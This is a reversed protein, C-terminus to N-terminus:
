IAARCSEVDFVVEGQNITQRVKAPGLDPLDFVVLNARSGITLQAPTQGILEAPRISAMEITTRLDCDTFRMINAVGYTIPLGAGALYQRQGGVVIKGDDLIEINGISTNTYHGPPMGAMGVLDSVLVCREPTKGRVFSKVVAPPLHHGDVILSAVLRDEALQDWIYNPHRRIQGHAANGLHTSMRAGADVATRIQDSDAATHGIAILVGAAVAKVIFEASGDYEPSLTLIRIRGGAAEQLRQFEDWDPPRCHELPHAGRPGDQRSIYPGEVHFGSVRRAVESSDECAAALIKMTHSLMEFSHTTATPLYSTVGDADMARSVRIVKETTLEFDNFEQGGYGNVQLDVFGPALWPENAGDAVPTIDTIKGNGITVSVPTGDDYRRGRIQM